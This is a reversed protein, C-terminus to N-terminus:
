RFKHGRQKIRYVKVDNANLHTLPTPSNGGELFKGSPQYIYAPGSYDQM